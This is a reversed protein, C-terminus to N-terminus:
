DTLKSFTEYGEESVILRAAGKLIRARFPTHLGTTEGDYQVGMPPDAVVHIDKGRHIELTDGRSPFEGGRDLLGAIVAPILNFATQAKLIVVDFIGDRPHNEHTVSIDFQIKSFNIVLIGLGESEFTKGDLTITFLSKQPLPNVLAASFYAIPGLLKKAPQASHMITADYGAGAM